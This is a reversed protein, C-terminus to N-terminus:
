RICIDPCITKCMGCENCKEADSLSAPKFGKVNLKDSVVLLKKPCATLCLLCGKCANEDISVSM